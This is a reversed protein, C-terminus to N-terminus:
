FEQEARKRGNELVTACFLELLNQAQEIDLDVFVGIMRCNKNVYAAFTRALADDASVSLLENIGNQRTNTTEM